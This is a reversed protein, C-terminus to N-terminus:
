PGTVAKTRPPPPLSLSCIGASSKFLWGATPRSVREFVYFVALPPSVLLLLGGCLGGRRRLLFFLGFFFSVFVVAVPPGLYGRECMQVTGLNLPRYADSQPRAPFM